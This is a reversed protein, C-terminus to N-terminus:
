PLFSLWLHYRSSKKKSGTFGEESGASVFTGSVVGTTSVGFSFLLVSSLLLGLPVPVM